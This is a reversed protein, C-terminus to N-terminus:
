SFYERSEHNQGEKDTNGEEAEAKREQLLRSVRIIESLFAIFGALFAQFRIIPALGHKQVFEATVRVNKIALKTDESIPKVESRLLNVFRAIQVILIGTAVFIVIAAMAVVIEVLNRFYNWYGAAGEPNLLASGLGWIFVGLYVVVPLLSLRIIYGVIDTGLLLDKLKNSWSRSENETAQMEAMLM